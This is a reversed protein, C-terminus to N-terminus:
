EDFIKSPRKQKWDNNKIITEIAQKTYGVDAYHLCVEDNIDFANEENLEGYRDILQVLYIDRASM